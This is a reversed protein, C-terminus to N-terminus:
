IETEVSGTTNHSGRQIQIVGPTIRTQPRHFSDDHESYESSDSSTISGDLDDLDEEEALYSSRRVQQPVEQETDDDVTVTRQM